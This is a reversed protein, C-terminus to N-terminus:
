ILVAVGAAVYSYPAYSEMGKVGSELGGYVTGRFAPSIVLFAIGMGMIGLARVMGRMRLGPVRRASGYRYTLPVSILLDGSSASLQIWFTRPCRRRRGTNAM